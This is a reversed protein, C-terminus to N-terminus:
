IRLNISARKFQPMFGYLQLALGETGTNSRRSSGYEVGSSCIGPAAEKAGTRVVSHSGSSECLNM